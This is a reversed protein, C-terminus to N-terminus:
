LWRKLHRVVSGGLLYLDRILPKVLDQRAPVSFATACQAVFRQHANTEALLFVFMSRPLFLCLYLTPFSFPGHWKQLRTNLKRSTWVHSCAWQNQQRGDGPNDATLAGHRVYRRVAALGAKRRRDHRLVDLITNVGGRPVVRVGSTCNVVAFGLEGSNSPRLQVPPM